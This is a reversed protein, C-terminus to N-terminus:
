FAMRINNIPLPNLPKPAQRAIKPRFIASSFHSSPLPLPIM